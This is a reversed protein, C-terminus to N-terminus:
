FGEVQKCLFKRGRLNHNQFLISARQRWNQAASKADHGLIRLHERWCSMWDRILACRQNRQAIFRSHLSPVARRRRWNFDNSPQASFDLSGVKSIADLFFVLFLATLPAIKSHEISLVAM